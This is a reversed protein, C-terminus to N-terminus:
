TAARVTLLPVHGSRVVREAVSGLVTHALSTSCHTGMAILDVPERRAVEHSAM